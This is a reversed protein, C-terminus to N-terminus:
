RARLLRKGFAEVLPAFDRTLVQRQLLLDLSAAWCLMLELTQFFFEGRREAQDQAIAMVSSSFPWM